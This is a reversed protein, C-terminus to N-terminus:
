YKPFGEILEGDPVFSLWEQVSTQQIPRQLVASRAKDKSASTLGKNALWERASFPVAGHAGISPRQEVRCAIPISARKM